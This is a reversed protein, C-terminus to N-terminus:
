RLVNPSNTTLGPWLHLTPDRNVLLLHSEPNLKISTLDVAMSLTGATGLCPSGTIFLHVLPSLHLTHQLSLTQITFVKPTDPPM